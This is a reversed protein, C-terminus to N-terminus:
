TPPVSYYMRAFAAITEKDSSHQWGVFLALYPPAQIWTSFPIMTITEVFHWEKHCPECLTILNDLSCEGGDMEATLHHAHLGSCRGCKRCKMNDRRHVERKVRKSMIKRAM